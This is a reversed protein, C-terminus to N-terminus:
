PAKPFMSISISTISDNSLLPSNTRHNKTAEIWLM